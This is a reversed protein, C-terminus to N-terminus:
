KDTLAVVGPLDKGELFMLSAGGGTSVHSVDDKLGAQKIASASDGGGIITTGGLRTTEALAEAVALTGGAYNEMEFVGMPGNWVVTKANKIINGFSIASQPGIDVGMWGDEIGDEGVVKHEADNKFEKAIISDMPLQFNLGKEKAKEILEAALDVKEDEVLSDGVPLGKAKYFTYTMGGGIIITDVKDLLNEIVGIKDSVKAGGLIAVFPHEPNNITDNLYKIEKELLYGSVAPQLFRTVGAVSSHARHSSGFADNCFLDGHAALQKCFEEDNAKEGKHFRVNELLVIEGDEAQDIVSTAKDGICDEAFHVNTDVLTQLHDAVPKLSLSEDVEGGPRGLHSMLILKGGNETVYNISPLAQVIRNDDGIEGNEIPVNFDVRMLVKKGKVDVDKLTMKNM